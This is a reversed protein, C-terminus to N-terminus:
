MHLDIGSGTNAETSAIADFMGPGPERLSEERPVSNVQPARKEDRSRQDLNSSSGSSYEQITVRPFPVQQESLRSHLAPLESTMVRGLEGREVSIEATFQHKGLSTRIDVNGLDGGQIGVRMESHGIREILKASNVLTGPFPSTTESADSDHAASVPQGAANAQSGSKPLDQASAAPKGPVPVSQTRDTDSVKASATDTPNTTVDKVPLTGKDLGSQSAVEPKRVKSADKLNAQPDNPASSSAAAKATSSVQLQPNKGIAPLPSKSTTGGKGTMLDASSLRSVMVQMAAANTVPSHGDTAIASNARSESGAQFEQPPKSSPSASAAHVTDSGAIGTTSRTTQPNDNGSALGSNTQAKTAQGPLTRLAIDTESGTKETLKKPVQFQAGSTKENLALKEGNTDPTNLFADGVQPGVESTPDTKAQGTTTSVSGPKVTDASVTNGLASKMADRPSINEVMSQATNTAPVNGIAPKVATTTLAAPPLLPPSSVPTDDAALSEIGGQPAQMVQNAALTESKAKVGPAVSGNLPLTQVVPPNQVVPVPINPLTQSIGEKGQEPDKMSANNFKGVPGSSKSSSLVVATNQTAGSGARSTASQDLSGDMNSAPGSSQMAGTLVKAFAGPAAPAAPASNASLGLIGLQIVPTNM